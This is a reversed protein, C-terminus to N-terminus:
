RSSFLSRLSTKTWLLGTFIMFYWAAYIWTVTTYLKEAFPQELFTTWGLVSIIPISGAHDILVGMAFWVIWHNFPTDEERDLRERLFFYACVAMWVASPVYTYRAFYYLSQGWLLNSIHLLPLILIGSYLVNRIRRNGLPHVLVVTTSFFQPLLAINYFWYNNHGHYALLSAGIDVAIFTTMVVAVRRDEATMRRYLVLMGTLMVLALQVSIENNIIWDIM